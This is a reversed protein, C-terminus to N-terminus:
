IAEGPGLQHLAIRRDSFGAKERRAAWERMHPTEFHAALAERSEWIETVHFLGPDGLDQAYSYAHCGPETRTAEIVERMLPCVQDLAEVPFRFTGIVAIM